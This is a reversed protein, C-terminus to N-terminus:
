GVLNGDRVDKQWEGHGVQLYKKWCRQCLDFFNKSQKFKKSAPAFKKDRELSQKRKEMYSAKIEEKSKFTPSSESGDVSKFSFQNIQVVKTPVLAVKKFDDSIEESSIGGGQSLKAKKQSEDEDLEM